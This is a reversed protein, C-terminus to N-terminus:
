SKIKKLIGEDVTAAVVTGRGWLSKKLIPPLDTHPLFWRRAVISTEAHPPLDTCHARQVNSIQRLRCDINVSRTLPNKLSQNFTSFQPRNFTSFYGVVVKL